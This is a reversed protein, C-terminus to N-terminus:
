HEITAKGSHWGVWCQYFISAYHEGSVCHDHKDLDITGQFQRIFLWHFRWGWGACECLRIMSFRWFWDCCIRSAFLSRFFNLPTETVILWRIQKTVIWKPDSSTTIVGRSTDSIFTWCDLEVYLRSRLKDCDYRSCNEKNFYISLALCCSWQMMMFIRDTSTSPQSRTSKFRAKRTVLCVSLKPVCPM